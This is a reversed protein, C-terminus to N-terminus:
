LSQVKKPDNQPDNQPGPARLPHRFAMFSLFRAGPCGRSAGFPDISAGIPGLRPAGSAMQRYYHLGHTGLPDWFSGLIPGSISGQSYTFVTSGDLRSGVQAEGAPTRFRDM